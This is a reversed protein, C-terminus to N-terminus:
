KQMIHIRSHTNLGIPNFVEAQHNPSQFRYTLAFRISCWIGLAIQVLRCRKIRVQEPM